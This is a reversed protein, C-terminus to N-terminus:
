EAREAGFLRRLDAWEEAAALVDEPTATELREWLEGKLDAPSTVVEVPEGAFNRGRVQVCWGPLTPTAFEEAPPLFVELVEVTQRPLAYRDQADLFGPDETEGREIRSILDEILRRAPETHDGQLMQRYEAVARRSFVPIVEHRLEAYMQAEKGNQRLVRGM